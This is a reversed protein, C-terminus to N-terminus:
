RLVLVFVRLFALVFDRLPDRAFAFAGVLLAAALRPM